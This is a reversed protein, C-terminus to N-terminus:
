SLVKLAYLQLGTESIDVKEFNHGARGLGLQARTVRFLEQVTIAGIFQGVFAKAGCGLHISRPTLDYKTHCTSTPEALLLLRIDYGINRRM